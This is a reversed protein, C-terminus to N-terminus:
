AAPKGARRVWELRALDIDAPVTCDAGLIVGTTGAAALLKATFAEIDEKSGWHLLSGPVNDFGGLVAKGHFIKKGEALDVNELRTAWNFADVPYDAFVQLDNHQGGFGCIHLIQRGGAAAAGELVKLESPAVWRRYAPHPLKGADPNTVSFYIGDAGGKKIVEEALVILGAAITDLAKACVEPKEALFRFAQDRGALFLLNNLPSFVNYFYATDEQLAAVRRVLEVQQTVWPDDASIVDIGALSEPSDYTKGQGRPYNFYGDSMIKVFDPHFAEIYQKHGAVNKELLAPNDVASNFEGGSLFHFWFGAPVRDVSENRFAKFLRERNGERKGM